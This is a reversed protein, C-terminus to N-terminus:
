VEALPVALTKDTPLGEIWRWIDDIQAAGPFENKAPDSNFNFGKPNHSDLWAPLKRQPNRVFVVSLWTTPKNKFVSRIWKNEIGVGSVPKSNARNVYNEDIILLVHAADTVERM